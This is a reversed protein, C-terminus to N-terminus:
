VTWKFRDRRQHHKSLTAITHQQSTKSKRQLADLQQSDPQRANTTKYKNNGQM